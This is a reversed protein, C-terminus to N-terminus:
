ARKLRLWRTQLKWSTGQCPLQSDRIWTSVHRLLISDETLTQRYKDLGQITKNVLNLTHFPENPQPNLLSVSSAEAM